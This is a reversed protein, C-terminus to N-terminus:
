ICVHMCAYMYIGYIYCVYIADASVRADRTDGGRSVGTDGGEFRDGSVRNYYPSTALAVKVLYYSDLLYM